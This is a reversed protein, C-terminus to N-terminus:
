WTGFPGLIPPTPFSTTNLQPNAFEYHLVYGLLMPM